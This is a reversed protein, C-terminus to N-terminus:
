SPGKRRKTIKRLAAEFDARTFEPRGESQPREQTPVVTSGNQTPPPRQGAIAGISLSLQDPLSHVIETLRDLRWILSDWSPSLNEPLDLPRPRSPRVDHRSELREAFSPELKGRMVRQTGETWQHVLSALQIEVALRRLPDISAFRTAQIRVAVQDGIRLLRELADRGSIEDLAAAMARRFENNRELLLAATWAIAFAAASPLLPSRGLLSAVLAALLAVLLARVLRKGPEWWNAAFRM